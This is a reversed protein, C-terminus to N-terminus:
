GPVAALMVAFERTPTLCILLVLPVMPPFAVILTVAFLMEVSPLRKTSIRFKLLPFMTPPASRVKFRVPSRSVWPLATSAIAFSEPPVIPDSATILIVAACCKM